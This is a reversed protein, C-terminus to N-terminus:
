KAKKKPKRKRKPAEIAEAVGATILQAAHGEDVDLVDGVGGRGFPRVHTGRTITVKM